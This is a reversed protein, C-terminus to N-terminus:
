YWRSASHKLQYEEVWIRYIEEVLASSEDVWEEGAEAKEREFVAMPVIDFRNGAWVGRWRQGDPTWGPIWCDRGSHQGPPNRVWVPQWTARAFAADALCAPKRLVSQYYRNFDAIADGRVFVKRSLNRLVYGTKGTPCPQFLVNELLDLSDDTPEDNKEMREGLPCTFTDALNPSALLTDYLKTYSPRDGLFYVEVLVTNHSIWSNDLVAVTTDIWPKPEEDEDEEKLLKDMRAVTILELRDGAWAARWYGNHEGHLFRNDPDERGWRAGWVTCRLVVTAMNWRLCDRRNREVIADGRVYLKRSTNCLVLNEENTRRLKANPVLQRILRKLTALEALDGATSNGFRKGLDKVLSGALDYPFKESMETFRRGAWDWFNCVRLNKCSVGRACPCKDGKNDEDVGCTTCFDKGDKSTLELDRPFDKRTADDEDNVYIIRHGSWGHAWTRILRQIRREAACWTARCTFALCFIDLRDDLLDLIMDVLELPLSTITTTKASEVAGRLLMPMKFWLPEAEYSIAYLFYQWKHKWTMSDYVDLYVKADLNILRYWRGM